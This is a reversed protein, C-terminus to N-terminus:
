RAEAAEQRPSKRAPEASAVEDEATREAGERARKPSRSQSAVEAQGGCNGHGSGSAQGETLCRPSANANGPSTPTIADGRAGAREAEDADAAGRSEPTPQLQSTAHQGGAGGDEGDPDAGAHVRPAAGGAGARGSPSPAPAQGPAPPHAPSAGDAAAAARGLSCVAPSSHQPPRGAPSAEGGCAPAAVAVPPSAKAATPGAPAASAAQPLEGDELVASAARAAAGNGSAPTRQPAAAPPPPGDSAGQQPTAAPPQPKARKQQSSYMETIQAEIDAPCPSGRHRAFQSCALPARHQCERKGLQPRNRLGQCRM